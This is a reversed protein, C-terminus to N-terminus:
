VLSPHDPLRTQEQAVLLAGPEDREPRPAWEGLASRPLTARAARGLRSRQEPDLHLVPAERGHMPDHEAPTM